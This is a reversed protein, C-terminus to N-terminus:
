VGDGRRTSVHDLTWSAMQARGLGEQLGRSWELKRLLQGPQPGALVLLQAASGAGVEAGMRQLPFPGPVRQLVPPCALGQAGAETEELLKYPRSCPNM